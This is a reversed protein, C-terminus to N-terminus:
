KKNFFHKNITNNYKVQKQKYFNAGKGPQKKGGRAVGTPEQSALKGETRLLGQETARGLSALPSNSGKQASCVRSRPAPLTTAVEPLKCWCSNYAVPGFATALTAPVPGFTASLLPQEACSAAAEIVLCCDLL